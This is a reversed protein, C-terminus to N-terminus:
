TFCQSEAINHVKYGFVEDARGIFFADVPAHEMFKYITIPVFNLALDQADESLPLVM